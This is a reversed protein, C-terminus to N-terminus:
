IEKANREVTLSYSSEFQKKNVHRRPPLSHDCLGCTARAIMVANVTAVLICLLLVADKLLLLNSYEIGHGHDLRRGLLSSTCILGRMRVVM